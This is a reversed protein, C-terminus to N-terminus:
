ALKVKQRVDAAKRADRFTIAAVAKEPMVRDAEDKGGYKRTGTQVRICNCEGLTM